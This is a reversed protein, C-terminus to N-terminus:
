SPWIPPRPTLASWISPSNIVIEDDAFASMPALTLVMVLVLLLAFVKKM